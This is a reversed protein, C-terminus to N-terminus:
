NKPCLWPAKKLEGYARQYRVAEWTDRLEKSGDYRSMMMTLATQIMDLQCPTFECIISM